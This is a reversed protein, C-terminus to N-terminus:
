KVILADGLEVQLQKIAVAAADKPSKEGSEAATM